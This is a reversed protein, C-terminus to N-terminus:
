FFLTVLFQSVDRDQASQTQVSVAQQIAAHSPPLQCRHSVGFPVPPFCWGSSLSVRSACEFRRVLVMHSEFASRRMQM